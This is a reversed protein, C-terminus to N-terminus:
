KNMTKNIKLLDMSISLVEFSRIMLFLRSNSIIKNEQQITNNNWYIHLSKCFNTIFLLLLNVELNISINKITEKWWILYMIVNKDEKNKLFNYDIFEEELTMKDIISNLRIYTYQIYFLPSNEINLNNLDINISTYYNQTLLLIKLFDSSYNEIFDCIKIFNGSRKSMKMEKNDKFVKVISHPVIQLKINFNKVIASLRKFYGIHDEGLVIIQRSFGRQLKKLHYTIDNGFYTFSGDERRIVRDKDDAFLTSKFLIKNEYEEILNKEKLKNITTSSEEILSSEYTYFDHKINMLSLDKIIDKKMNELIEKRFKENFEEYFYNNEDIYEQAINKVYEGKYFIDEEFLDQYKIERYRTYISKIFKNIQNGGDNFYFDRCVNYGIYQFINSLTDGIVTGRAHGIHLPGTANPSTYEIIIPTNHKIFSFDLDKLISSKFFINMFNNKIEVTDINKDSKLILRLNDGVDKKYKNKIIFLINTAVHGRSFKPIELTFHINVFNNQKLFENLIYRIHDIM